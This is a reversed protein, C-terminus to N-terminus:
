AAKKSRPKKIEYHEFSGDDRERFFIDRGSKLMQYVAGQTVGLISGVQGQTRGKVFESIHIEEAM